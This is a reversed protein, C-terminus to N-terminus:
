HLHGVFVVVLLLSGHRERGIDRGDGKGVVVILRGTSGWLKM